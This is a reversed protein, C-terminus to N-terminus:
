EVICVHATKRSPNECGELVPDTISPPVYLLRVEDQVEQVRLQLMQVSQRQDNDNLAFSDTCLPSSWHLALHVHCGAAELAEM